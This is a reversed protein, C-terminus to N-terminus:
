QRLRRRQLEEVILSLERSTQGKISSNEEARRSLYPLLDELPGYPVYKCVRYDEHALNFSLHDSMGLLQSFYVNPDNKEAGFEKMLQTLLKTSRENHTGACLAIRRRHELCYRLALNFDQDTAEKSAHLPNRYSFAKARATEKELYAGRVLKVGLHYNHASADGYCQKLYDLRDRRYMQFTNYIIPADQNVRRMLQRVIQDISDQIWTEEADILLRVGKQQAYSALDEFRNEVRQFEVKEDDTLELRRDKKELLAFRAIGTPKFVAFPLKEDRAALDINRKTEEVVRDFVQESSVAECAYDLISGIGHGALEQIRPRCEEISEGGCFQGFITKKILSRVPLHLRLSFSALKPGFRVLLPNGIMKFLWFAQLLQRDSLRAFAIETNALELGGVNGLRGSIPESNQM